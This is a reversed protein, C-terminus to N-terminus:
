GRLGAPLRIRGERALRLAAALVDRQASRVDRLLVRGMGNVDERVMQYARESLNRRCKERLADGAVALSQTLEENSVEKLLERFDEDALDALVDVPATLLTLASGTLGPRAERAAALLRVRDARGLGDLLASVVWPRARGREAPDGPAEALDRAELAFDALVGAQVPLALMGFVQEGGLGLSSALAEGVCRPCERGGTEFLADRWASVGCAQGAAEWAACREGTCAARLLPCCRAGDTELGPPLAACPLPELGSFAASFGPLHLSLGGDESLLAARELADGALALVGPMFVPSARRAAEMDRSTAAPAAALLPACDADDLLVALSELEDPRCAAVFTQAADGRLFRFDWIEWFTSAAARRPMGIAQLATPGLRDMLRALRHFTRRPDLGLREDLTPVFRRAADAVIEADGAPRGALAAASWAPPACLLLRALASFGEGPRPSPSPLAGLLAVGALCHRAVCGPGGGNGASWFLCGSGRCPGNLFRCSAGGGDAQSHQFIGPM